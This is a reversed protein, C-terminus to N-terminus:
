RWASGIRLLHATEVPVKKCVTEEQETSARKQSDTVWVKLQSVGITHYGMVDQGVRRGTAGCPLHPPSYIYYFRKKIISKKHLFSSGEKTSTRQVGLPQHMVM